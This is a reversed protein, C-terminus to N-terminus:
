RVAKRRSIFMKKHMLTAKARSRNKLKDIMVQILRLM